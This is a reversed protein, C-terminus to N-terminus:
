TDMLSFWLIGAEVSTVALMQIDTTNRFHNRLCKTELVCPKHVNGADYSTQQLCFRSWDLASWHRQAIRLLNSCLSDLAFATPVFFCRHKSINRIKM